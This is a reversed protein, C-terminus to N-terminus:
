TTQNGATVTDTGDNQLSATKNQYLQCGVVISKAAGSGVHVGYIQKTTGTTSRSICGVVSCRALSGATADLKIGSYTSTDGSDNDACTAGGLVVERVIEGVGAANLYIGHRTNDSFKGGNVTVYKSQKIELGHTGNGICVVGNFVSNDSVECFIGRGTNASCLCGTYVTDTAGPANSWTNIGSTGNAYFQGGDVRHQQGDMQLGAGANSYAICNSVTCRRSPPDSVYIGHDGTTTGNSYSTCGEVACDISGFLMIGSSNAGTVTCDRIRVRTPTTSSIRIGMLGGSTSVNDVLSDTVGGLRICDGTITTVEVRLDVIQVGAVSSAHIAHVSATSCKIISGRGTGVIRTNAAPALAAATLYTGKPVFLCAGAAATLAAALAATDDTAGDGLAGYAKVSVASAADIRDLNANMAPGWGSEGTEWGTTINLNTRVVTM